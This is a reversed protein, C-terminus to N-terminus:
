RGLARTLSELLDDAASAQSTGGGLISDLASGARQTAKGRVEPAANAGFVSNLIDGIGGASGGSSGGLIQGLIDDVQAGGGRPAPHAAAGSGLVQGLIDGIGGGGARQQAAGGGGLVQGLIDGIGGGSSQGSVRKSLAGMVMAAVMPLMQKLINAGVGSTESARAAVGRSVDTSGFIHGLIGNGDNVIDADDGNLYRAHNGSALAGLLGQLGDASTTERRIGAEVVPVLQNVATRTQAEDLGFRRALMQINQGDQAQDIMDAINM